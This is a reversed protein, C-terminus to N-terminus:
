KWGSSRTVYLGWKVIDLTCPTVIASIGRTAVHLLYRRCPMHLIRTAAMSSISIDRL